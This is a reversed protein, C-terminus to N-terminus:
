GDDKVEGLNLRELERNLVTSDELGM